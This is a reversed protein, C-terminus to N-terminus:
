FVGEFVKEYLLGEEHKSLEIDLEAAKDVYRDFVADVKEDDDECDVDWCEKLHEQYFAEVDLPSKSKDSM